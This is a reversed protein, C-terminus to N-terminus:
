LTLFINMIWQPHELSKCLHILTGTLFAGLSQQAARTILSIPLIPHKSVLVPCSFPFQVRADPTFHWMQLSELMSTKNQAWFLLFMILFTWYESPHLRTNSSMNNFIITQLIILLSDLSDPKHWMSTTNIDPSGNPFLERSLVVRSSTFRTYSCFGSVTLFIQGLSAKTEYPRKAAILCPQPDQSPNSLIQHTDTTKMVMLTLQFILQQSPGHEYLNVHTKTSEQDTHPSLTSAWKHNHSWTKSSHLEVSLLTSTKVCAKWTACRSLKM